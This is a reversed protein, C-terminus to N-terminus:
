ILICCSLSKSLKDFIYIYLYRGNSNEKVDLKWLRGQTGKKKNFLVIPSLFNSNLFFFWWCKSVSTPKQLKEPWDPAKSTTHLASWLDCLGHVPALTGDERSWRYLTCVAFQLAAMREPPLQLPTSGQPNSCTRTSKLLEMWGDM